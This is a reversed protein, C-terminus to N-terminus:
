LQSVSHQSVDEAMLGSFKIEDSPRRHKQTVM